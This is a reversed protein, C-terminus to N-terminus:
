LAIPQRPTGGNIWQLDRSSDIASREWMEPAGLWTDVAVVKGPLRRLRLQEAIAITTAGKWVGVEVCLSPRLVAVLREYLGLTLGWGALDAPRLTLNRYIDHGRYMRKYLPDDLYPHSAVGDDLEPASLNLSAAARRRRRRSAGGLARGDRKWSTYRRGFFHRPQTLECQSCFYCNGWLESHSFYACGATARCHPVCSRPRYNFNNPTSWIMSHNKGDRALEKPHCCHAATHIKTFTARPASENSPPRLM